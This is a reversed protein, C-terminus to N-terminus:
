GVMQLYTDCINKERAIHVVRPNNLKTVADLSDTNIVSKSDYQMALKVALLEAENNDKAKIRVHKGDMSEDCHGILWTGRGIEKADCYLM